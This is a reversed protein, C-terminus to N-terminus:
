RKRRVCTAVVIRGEASTRSPVLEADFEFMARADALEDEVRAGKPLVWRTSQAAFRLGYDFLKALPALARATIVDIAQGGGTPSTGSPRLPDPHAGDRALAVAEIRAHHVMVREGVGLLAATEELFRVKKGTAEVLVVRAGMLALVLGPFGAGAGLDLWTGGGQTLLQASDAFHRTWVDALTAPGVLNMRAQGDALAAAYLDFRAMLEPAIAYDAAFAERASM